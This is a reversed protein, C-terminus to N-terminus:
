GLDWDMHTHNTSFSLDFPLYVDQIQDRKIRKVQPTRQSILEYVTKRRTGVHVIGTYMFREVLKPAIVDVYDASTWMDEVAGPHPFETPKFSTRIILSSPMARVICEGALKTMGYFCFPCPEDDARYKGNTGSFVYDTSLYIV